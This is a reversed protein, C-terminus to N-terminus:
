LIICSFSRQQKGIYGKLLHIFTQTSSSKSVKFDEGNISMDSAVDDGDYDIASETYQLSSSTINDSEDEISNYSRTPSGDRPVEDDALLPSTLSSENM